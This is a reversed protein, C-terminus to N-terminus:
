KHFREWGFSSIVFVLGPPRPIPVASFKSIFEHKWETIDYVLTLMHLMFYTNYYWSPLFTNCNNTRCTLIYPSSVCHELRVGFSSLQFIHYLIQGFAAEWHWWPWPRFPHGSLSSLPPGRQSLCVPVWPTSRFPTRGQNTQRALQTPVLYKQGAKAARTQGSNKKKEWWVINM